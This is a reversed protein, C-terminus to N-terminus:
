REYLKPDLSEQLTLLAGLTKFHLKRVRLGTLLFLFLMAAVLTGLVRVLGMRGQADDYTVLRYMAWASVVILGVYVALFAFLSALVLVVRQRYAQPLRPPPV